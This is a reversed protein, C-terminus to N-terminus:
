RQVHAPSNDVQGPDRMARTLSTHLRRAHTVAERRAKMAKVNGLKCDPLFPATSRGATDYIPPQSQFLNNSQNSMRLDQPVLFSSMSIAICISLHSALTLCM